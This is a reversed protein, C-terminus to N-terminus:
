KGLATNVDELTKCLTVSKLYCVDGASASCFFDFRLGYIDGSWFSTSSLDVTKTVYEGSKTVPFVVSAGATPVKYNGSCLFIEAQNRAISNTTPLCYEYLIYKYENASLGVDSLDMYVYPDVSNSAVTLKLENNSIRTYSANHAGGLRAFNEANFTIKFNETYVKKSKRAWLRKYAFSDAADYTEFLGFSDIECNLSATDFTMGKYSYKKPLEIITACYDGDCTLVVVTKTDESVETSYYATVSVDVGKPAKYVLVAYATYNPVSSTLLTLQSSDKPVVKLSASDASFTANTPKTSIRVTSATAKGAVVLRLAIADLSNLKGDGNFDIVAIDKICNNGSIAMAATMIDLTNIKGNMDADGVSYEAIDGGVYDLKEETNYLVTSSEGVYTGNATGARYAAVKEAEAQTKAMSISAIYLTDGVALSKLPTIKLRNVSGDWWTKESLDIIESHFAGDATTKLIHRQSDTTEVDASTSFNLQISAATASNSVPTMHTIIVYKYESASVADVTPYIVYCNPATSNTVRIAASNEGESYYATLNNQAELVYVDEVSEFVIDTYDTTNGENKSILLIAEKGATYCRRVDDSLTAADIAAKAKEIENSVLTKSTPSYSNIDVLASLRAKASDKVAESANTPTIANLVATTYVRALTDNLHCINNASLDTYSKKTLLFDHVAMVDAVAVGSTEAMEYYGDRYEYFYSKKFCEPNSFMPAVLIIDCDPYSNKVNDIVYQMESLVRSSSFQFQADNTGLALILLDPEAPIIADFVHEKADSVCGGSISPNKFTVNANPYQKVVEKKFMDVWSEAYPEINIVASSNGGRTISDGFFVINCNQGNELLSKIHPLSDGQLPPVYGSWDDEHIYTVAIQQLPIGSGEEFRVYGSGDLLKYTNEVNSSFYHSSYPITPISGSKLIRLKGNVLEYDVGERYLTGLTSSRVAIIRSADYMLGYDGLSGDKNAVPYVAENYVIDTDWYPIVYDEQDYASCDLRSEAYKSLIAGDANTKGIEAKADAEERTKCFSISYLYIRDGSKCDTFFTIKISDFSGTDSIDSISSYCKLGRTLPLMKSSVTAGNKLFDLQMIYADSSNTSLARYTLSLYNKDNQTEPLTLLASPASGQSTVRIAKEDTNYVLDAGTVNSFRVVSSDSRFSLDYTDAASSPLVFCPIVLLVALLVCAIRMHSKM